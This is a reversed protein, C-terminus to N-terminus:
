HSRGQRVTREVIELCAAKGEKSLLREQPWKDPRRAVDDGGHFSADAWCDIMVRGSSGCDFEGFIWGKFISTQGTLTKLWNVDLRERNVLTEVGGFQLRTIPYNGYRYGEGLVLGFTLGERTFIIGRKLDFSLAKIGGSGEDFREWDRIHDPGFEAALTMGMEVAWGCIAGYLDNLFEEGRRKDEQTEPLTRKRISEASM